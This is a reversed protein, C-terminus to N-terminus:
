GHPQDLRRMPMNYHVSLARVIDLQEAMTQARRTGTVLLKKLDPVRKARHLMEIRWALAADRNHEADRAGKAVV